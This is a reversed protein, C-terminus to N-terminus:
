IIVNIIRMSFHTYLSTYRFGGVLYGGLVRLRYIFQAHTEVQSSYRIALSYRDAHCITPYHSYICKYTALLMVGGPESGCPGARNLNHLKSGIESRGHLPTCSLTDTKTLDSIIEIYIYIGRCCRHCGWQWTNCIILNGVVTTSYNFRQSNSKLSKEKWRDVTARFQSVFSVRYYDPIQIRLMPPVTMRLMWENEYCYKREDSLFSICIEASVCFSLFLANVQPCLTSWKMYM